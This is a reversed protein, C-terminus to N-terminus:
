AVLIAASSGLGLKQEGDRLPGADFWPATRGALAASVEPTLRDAPRGTDATVWRDVATVIAPAGELVAYAGSLVLKGPARAIM